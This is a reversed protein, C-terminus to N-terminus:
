RQIFTPAFDGLEMMRLADGLRPSFRRGPLSKKFLKVEPRSNSFLRPRTRFYASQAYRPPQVEPVPTIMAPPKDNLSILGMCIALPRM